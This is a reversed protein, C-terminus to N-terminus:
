RPVAPIRTPPVGALLAGVQAVAAREAESLEGQVARASFAVVETFGGPSSEGTSM